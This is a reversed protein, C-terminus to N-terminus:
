DGLGEREERLEEDDLYPPGDSDVFGCKPCESGPELEDFGERFDQGNSRYGCYGCVATEEPTPFYKPLDTM